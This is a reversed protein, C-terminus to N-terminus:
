GLALLCAGKPTIVRCFCLFFHNQFKKLDKQLQKQAFFVQFRTADCRHDPITGDSSTAAARRRQMFPHWKGGSATPAHTRLCANTSAAILAQM